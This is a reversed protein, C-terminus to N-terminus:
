EPPVEKSLKDAEAQSELLRYVLLGTYAARVPESFNIAFGSVMNAVYSNDEKLRTLMEAVYSNKEPLKRSQHLEAGLVEGIEDSVVPLQGSRGLLHYILTGMYKQEESSASQVCTLAVFKAVNPNEDAMERFLENVLNENVLLELQLTQAARETVEPLLGKKESM